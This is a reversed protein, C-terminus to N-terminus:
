KQKKAARRRLESKATWKGSGAIGKNESAYFVQKGKKKGYHKQMEELVERGTKTLPM